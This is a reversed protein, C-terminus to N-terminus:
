ILLDNNDDDDDNDDDDNDDDDDDDAAASAAAAVAAASDCDSNFVAHGQAFLKVKARLKMGKLYAYHSQFLPVNFYALM